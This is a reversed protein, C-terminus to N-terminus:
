SKQVDILGKKALQVRLLSMAQTWLQYDSAESERSGDPKLGIRGYKKLVRVHDERLYGLRIQTELIIQVDLGSGKRPITSSPPIISGEARARQRTAMTFFADEECSYLAEVIGREGM